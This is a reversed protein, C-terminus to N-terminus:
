DNENGGEFLSRLCFIGGSLEANIANNISPLLGNAFLLTFKIYRIQDDLYNLINDFRGVRMGYYRFYDEIFQKEETTCDYIEFYAKANNVKSYDTSVAVSGPQSKVAMMNLNFMDKKYALDEARQSNSINQSLKASELNREAINEQAGISVAASAAGAATGILGLAGVPGKAAIAGVSGATGVLAGILAKDKAAQINTQSNQYSTTYNLTEQARSNDQSVELNKIERDFMARYTSNHLKYEVWANTVQSLSFGGEWILGRSDKYNGGYLSNLNFVPAIRFITNFPMLTYSFSLAQIGRNKVPNFEFIQKHNHSVMRVKKTMSDLKFDTGFYSSLDVPYRYDMSSQRCAVAYYFAPTNAGVLTIPILDGSQMGDLTITNSPSDSNRLSNLAGCPCYPLIQIDKIATGVNTWGTTFISKISTEDLNYTKDDYEINCNPGYPIAICGMNLEDLKAHNPLVIQGHVQIQAMSSDFIESSLKLSDDTSSPTVLNIEKRTGLGKDDFTIPLMLGVILDLAENYDKLIDSDSILDNTSRTSISLRSIGDAGRDITRGDYRNRLTIYKNTRNINYDNNLSTRFADVNLGSLANNIIFHAQHQLEPNSVSASFFPYSFGNPSVVLDYTLVSTKTVVDFVFEQVRFTYRRKFTSWRRYYTNSTTTNSNNLTFDNNSPGKYDNQVAEITYDPEFSQDWDFTITRDADEATIDYFLTLWQTDADWSKIDIQGVKIENLALGEPQVLVNTWRDRPMIGRDVRATSLSIERRFDVIVDRLLTVYWKSTDTVEGSIFNVNTVYWRSEIVGQNLILLYNPLNKGVTIPLTSVCNANVLDGCNWHTNSERFVVYQNFNSEDILIKQRDNYNHQSSYIWVRQRVAM